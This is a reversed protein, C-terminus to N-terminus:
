TIRIYPDLCKAVDSPMRNSTTIVGDSSVTIDAPTATVGAQLTYLHKAWRLAGLKISAPIDTSYGWKGAVAIAGEPSGTYTWSIGANAKLRIMQYPISNMPLCVYDASSIAVGDGNTISTIQALDHGLNLTYADLLHGGEREPLPTFYHTHSAAPGHASEPEFHRNCYKDILDTVQDPILALEVDDNDTTIRLYSKLEELTIYAM